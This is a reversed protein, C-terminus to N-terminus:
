RSRPEPIARHLNGDSGYNKPVRWGIVPTRRATVLCDAIDLSDALTVATDCQTRAIVLAVTGPSAPLITYEEEADQKASAPVQDTMPKGQGSMQERSIDRDLM